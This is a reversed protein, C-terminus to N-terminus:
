GHGPLSVTEHINLACLSFKEAGGVAVEAEDTHTEWSSCSQAAQVDQWPKVEAGERPSGEEAARQIVEYPEIQETHVNLNSSCDLSPISEPSQVLM